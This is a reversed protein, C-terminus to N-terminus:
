ALEREEIRDLVDMPVELLEWESLASLMELPTMKFEKCLYELIADGQKGEAYLKNIMADSYESMALEEVLESVKTKWGDVSLPDLLELRRADELAALSASWSLSEDPMSRVKLLSYVQLSPPVLRLAKQFAADDLLVEWKMALRHSYRLFIRDVPEKADNLKAVKAFWASGVRKQGDNWDPIYMELRGATMAPPKEKSPRCARSPTKPLVNDEEPFGELQVNSLACVKGIFMMDRLSPPHVWASPSPEKDKEEDIVMVEKSQTYIRRASDAVQRISLKLRNTTDADDQAGINLRAEIAFVDALGQALEEFLKPLHNNPVAAEQLIEAQWDVFEEFTADKEFPNTNWDFVLYDDKAGKMPTLTLSNTLTAGFTQLESEQIMQDGNDDFVQFLPLMTRKFDFEEILGDLSVTLLAKRNRIWTKFQDPDIEGVGEQDIEALLEEAHSQDVQTIMRKCMIHYLEDADISGGGDGDWSNFYGQIVKDWHEAYEAPHAARSEVMKTM